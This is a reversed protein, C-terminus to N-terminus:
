FTGKKIIDIKIGYIAEVQKIKNISVRTMAGKCDEVTIMRSGDSVDSRQHVVFFDARYIINGPLHFPVQRLFYAIAGARWLNSWYLYRLGELKSDFRFGDVVIAKAGFKNAPRTRSAKLDEVSMRQFVSSV